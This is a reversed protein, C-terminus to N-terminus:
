PLVYLCKFFNIFLFSYFHSGVKKTTAKAVHIDFMDCFDFLKDKVCRDLKEKFKLKEKDQKYM